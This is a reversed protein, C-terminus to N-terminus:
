KVKRAADLFEDAEKRTKFRKFRLSDPLEGSIVFSSDQGEDGTERDNAPVTKERKITKNLKHPYRTDRLIKEAPTLKSYPKVAIPDYMKFDVDDNDIPSSHDGTFMYDVIMQPAIRRDFLQMPADTNLVYDSLERQKYKYRNIVVRYEEPKIKRKGQPTLRDDNITAMVSAYKKDNSAHIKDPDDTKLRTEHTKQYHGSREYFDLVLQANNYVDMSDKLTAQGSNSDDKNKSQACVPLHAALCVVLGKVICKIIHTSLLFRSVSLREGLSFNSSCRDM